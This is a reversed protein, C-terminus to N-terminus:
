EELMLQAHKRQDANLWTNNALEYWDSREDIVGLRKSANDDFDLLKDRHELAIDYNAM